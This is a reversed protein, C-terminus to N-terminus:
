FDGKGEGRLDAAAETFKMKMIAKTLMKMIAQM